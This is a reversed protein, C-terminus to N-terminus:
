IGLLPFASNCLNLITHSPRICPRTTYSRTRWSEQWGFSEQLHSSRRGDYCQLSAQTMTTHRRAKAPIAKNDKTSWKSSLTTSGTSCVMM